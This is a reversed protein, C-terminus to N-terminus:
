SSENADKRSDAALFVITGMLVGFGAAHVYNVNFVVDALGAATLGACGLMIAVFDNFGRDRSFRVIFYGLGHGGALCLAFYLGDLSLFFPLM